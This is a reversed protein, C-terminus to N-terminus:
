QSDQERMVNELAMQRVTQVTQVLETAEEPGAWRTASGIAGINKWGELAIIVNQKDDVARIVFSLQEADKVMKLLKAPLFMVPRNEGTEPVVAALELGGVKLAVRGLRAQTDGPMSDRTLLETTDTRDTEFVKWKEREEEPIDALVLLTEPTIVPLGDLPFLAYGGGDLYQRAISGSPTRENILTLTRYIKALTNLDKVKLRKGEKQMCTCRRVRVSQCMWGLFIKNTERGADAAPPRLLFRVQVMVTILRRCQGNYSVGTDDRGEM